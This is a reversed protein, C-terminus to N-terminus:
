KEPFRLHWRDHYIGTRCATRIGFQVPSSLSTEHNQKVGHLEMKEIMKVFLTHAGTRDPVIKDNNTQVVVIMLGAQRFAPLLVFIM